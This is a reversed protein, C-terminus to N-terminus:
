RGQVNGNGSLATVPPVVCLWYTLGESESVMMTEGFELTVTGLHNKM